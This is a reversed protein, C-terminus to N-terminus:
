FIQLWENFGVVYLNDNAPDEESGTLKFHFHSTRDPTLGILTESFNKLSM